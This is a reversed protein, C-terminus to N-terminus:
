IGALRSGISVLVMLLVGVMFLAALWGAGLYLADLFRRM